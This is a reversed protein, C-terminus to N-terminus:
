WENKRQQIQMLWLMFKKEAFRKVNKRVPTFLPNPIDKDIFDPHTVLNYVMCYGNYFGLSAGAVARNNEYCLFHYFHDSEFTKQLCSIYAPTYISRQPLINGYIDSFLKKFENFDEETKIERVPHINQLGEGGYRLWSETYKVMFKREILEKLTEAELSNIYICPKRKLEEFKAYIDDAVKKFTTIESLVAFNWFIDEIKRSNYIMFSDDSVSEDFFINKNIHYHVNLLSLM